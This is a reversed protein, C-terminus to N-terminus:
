FFYISIKDKELDIVILKTNFIYFAKKDTGGIDFTANLGDRNYNFVKYSEGVDVGRFSIYYETFDIQVIDTSKEVVPGGYNNLDASEFNKVLKPDAMLGVVMLLMLLMILAKKM